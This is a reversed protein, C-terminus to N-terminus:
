IRYEHKEKLFAKLDIKPLEIKYARKHHKDLWARFRIIVKKTEELTEIFCALDKLKLEVEGLHSRIHMLCDFFQLGICGLCDEPQPSSGYIDKFKCKEDDAFLCIL